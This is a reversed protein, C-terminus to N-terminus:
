AFLCVFLCDELGYLLSRLEKATRLFSISRVVEARSEDKCLQGTIVIVGIIKVKSQLLKCKSAILKLGAGELRTLFRSILKM